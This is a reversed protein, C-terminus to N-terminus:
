KFDLIFNGKNCNYTPIAEWKKEKKEKLKEQIHPSIIPIFHNEPVLTANMLNCARRVSPIDGFRKIYDLDDKVDQHSNYYPIWELCKGHLVYNIIQKALFM